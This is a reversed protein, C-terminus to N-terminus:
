SFITTSALISHYAIDSIPCLWRLAAANHLPRMLFFICMLIFIPCIQKKDVSTFSSFQNTACLGQSFILKNNLKQFQHPNITFYFLFSAFVCMIQLIFYGTKGVVNVTRKLKKTRMQFPFILHPLISLLHIRIWNMYTILLKVHCTWM